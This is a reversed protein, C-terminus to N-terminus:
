AYKNRNIFDILEKQSVTLNRKERLNDYARRLSYITDVNVVKDESLGYNYLQKIFNDKTTSINFTIKSLVPALTKLKTSFCCISGNDSEILYTDFKNLNKICDQINLHNIEPSDSICITIKKGFIKCLDYANSLLKNISEGHYNIISNDSLRYDNLYTNTFSTNIVVIKNNSSKCNKINESTIKLCIDNYKDILTNNNLEQRIKTKNENSKPDSCVFCIINEYKKYGGGKFIKNKIANISRKIFSDDKFDQSKIQKTIENVEIELIKCKNIFNLIIDDANDSEFKNLMYFLNKDIVLSLLKDPNIDLYNVSNKKIKSLLEFHIKNIDDNENLFIINQNQAEEVGANFANRKSMQDIKIIKQTHNSLQEASSFDNETVCIIEIEPIKNKLDEFFKINYDKIPIVASFKM